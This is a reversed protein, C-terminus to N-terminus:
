SIRAIAYRTFGADARNAWVRMVLRRLDDAEEHTGPAVCISSDGHRQHFIGVQVQSGEDDYEVWVPWNYGAYPGLWLEENEALMAAVSEYEWGTYSDEFGEIRTM